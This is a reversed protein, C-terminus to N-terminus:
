TLMAVWNEIVSAPRYALKAARLGHLGADDMANIFVAGQAVALRCTARFLYQALGPISRDAVELLVCYTEATLWYGFTYAAVTGDIRAVSGHLQLPGHEALALRHAPEADELFLQGLPDSEGAQKQRAWREYLSVCGGHDADGYPEIAVNREREVRNCLARQSKYQDGSLTALAEAHYLYDGGKQTCLLGARECVVKQKAMVNEIRSVPSSGNWKRLLRAAEAVTQELPRPGLPVLPMFFGDPSQAFLFLTDNSELRWYPMLSTWIAHYPFAYAALAGPVLLGAQELAQTFRPADASTLPRLRSDVIQSLRPRLRATLRPLERIVVVDDQFRGILRPHATLRDIMEDTSLLATVREAHEAIAPPLTELMFPCKQDWGLLVRERAEDWMLALPYLRCDLPREEYIGCRNAVPDFAPCLYGEGLPHKVLNIQAGAPKSFLAPDIGRAVAAEIEQEMFYPRLFSDAEPFRCCVECRACASSPVIQPLTKPSTVLLEPEVKLLDM